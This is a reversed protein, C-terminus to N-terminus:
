LIFNVDFGDECEKIAAFISDLEAIKSMSNKKILV